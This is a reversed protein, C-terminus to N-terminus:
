NVGGNFASIEADSVKDSLGAMRLRAVALQRVTYGTYDGPNEKFAKFADRITASRKDTPAGNTYTESHWVKPAGEMVIKFATLDKRATANAWDMQTENNPNLQGSDVYVKVAVDALKEAKDRNLEDVQSKLAAYETADVKSVQLAGLAKTIEDKDATKKLGLGVAVDSRFAKLAEEVPTEDVKGGGDMGAVLEVAKQIAELLTAEEPLEGSAVFAAKLNAAAEAVMQMKGLQDPEMVAEGPTDDNVSVESGALDSLAKLLKTPDAKLATITIDGTKKKMVAVGRKAAVRPLGHIAPDNTLGVSHLEIPKNTKEDHVLVPSLFRYENAQISRRAEDTWEVRAIIGRGKEYRLSHIWGAAPAKGDPRAYRGGITQHEYDFVLEHRHELFSTNIADFSQQDVVFDGKSSQVKGDPLVLVDVMGVQAIAPDITIESYPLGKVVSRV